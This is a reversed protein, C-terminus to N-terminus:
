VDKKAKCLKELFWAVQNEINKLEEIFTFYMKHMNKTPLRLRPSAVLALAQL